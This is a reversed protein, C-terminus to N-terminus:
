SRPCRSSPWICAPHAGAPKALYGWVEETTFTLLPALMRVLAYTLKYLATQASRREESKPATTYLRDKLVDFYIASLDTTAFGYLAQYVRHFSLDAYSQRCRRVLDEARLLIWQDIEELSEM